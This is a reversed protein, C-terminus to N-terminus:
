KWGYEKEKGMDYIAKKTAELFKNIQEDSQESCVYGEEIGMGKLIEMRRSQLEYQFGKKWAVSSIREIELINKNM